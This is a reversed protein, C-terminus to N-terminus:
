KNDGCAQIGKQCLALAIVYSVKSVKGKLLVQNTEKPISNIVVAAALSSGDVLRIKLKPHRQIYLEGNGNLEENQNLLGLTLVKAGKKDAELIAEEILNSVINTKQRELLYHMTYRPVVWSQLKLKNFSNRESIFTRGYMWTFVVSWCAVPWMAMSYLKSSSPVFPKSALSALGIRLHYISNPTTLHTLYVIDPSEEPRKLASEYLADSSKDVTGYMYDYIPMFLCYNTRFQTHHLSHYSPTYLLYKLLPFISFVWKPVLEFNCHGMNNMLDIYTIYGFEVVISSTGTFLLTLIPIAFLLFYAVEEGFPHIVSTIPETAISSHHHSHYRSYLFHHHLARHLWYYLFEVPGMHLLITIIAGDLRWLPSNSAEPIIMYGLYFMLGNLIIQDDWNSERDVQEFEIGKDVIRNNGKATRYRSYSIWIQSHLLRTVLFPFILVYVLDVERIGKTVLCYSSHVVWPALIVYKFNGLSQWPWNTLVGPKTAM